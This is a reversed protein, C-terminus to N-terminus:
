LNFFFTDKESLYNNNNNTLYSYANILSSIFIICLCAFIPIKINLYFYVIITAILQGLIAIWRIKILNSLLINSSTDM